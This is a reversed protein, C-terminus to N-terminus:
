TDIAKESNKSMNETITETATTVMHMAWICIPSMYTKIVAGHERIIEALCMKLQKEKEPTILKKTFGKMDPLYKKTMENQRGTEVLNEIFNAM